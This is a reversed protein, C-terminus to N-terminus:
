IVGKGLSLFNLFINLKVTKIDVSCQDCHKLNQKAFQQQSSLSNQGM